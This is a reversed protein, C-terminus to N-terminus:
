FVKRNKIFRYNGTFLNVSYVVYADKDVYTLNPELDTSFQNPATADTGNTGDIAAAEQVIEFSVTQDKGDGGVVEVSQSAVRQAKAKQRRLRKLVGLVDFLFGLFFFVVLCIVCRFVLVGLTIM